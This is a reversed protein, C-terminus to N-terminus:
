GELSMERAIQPRGDELEIARGVRRARLAAKIRRELPESLLGVAGEIDVFGYANLEGAALRISRAEIEDLTGGDYILALGDSRPPDASTWDVVLLTGVAPDVGLMEGVARRAATRPSEGAAVMGGPIEWTSQYSPQILLVRGDYDAFLVAASVPKGPQAAFFDGANPAPRM